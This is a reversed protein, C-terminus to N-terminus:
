GGAKAAAHEEATREFSLLTRGEEPLYEKGVQRLGVRRAVAVSRENRADCSMVVRQGSLGQFAWECMLINTETMYGFGEASPRLWFGLEFTFRYDREYITM